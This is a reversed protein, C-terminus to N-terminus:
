PEHVTEVEHIEIEPPGTFMGDPTEGSHSKQFAESSTWAEFDERSEWFTLAVFVDTDDDAPTLVHFRVFGDRKELYDMSSDFTALFEEEYEEAVYFRNTVALM